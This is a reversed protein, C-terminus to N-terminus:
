FFDFDIETDVKLIPGSRYISKDNHRTRLGSFPMLVFELLLIPIDLFLFTSDM